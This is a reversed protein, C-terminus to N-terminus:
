NDKYLSIMSKSRPFRRIKAVGDPQDSTAPELVWRYNGGCQKTPHEELVIAGTETAGAVVVTALCKAAVVKTLTRTLDVLQVSGDTTHYRFLTAGPTEGAEAFAGFVTKGDRLFGDLRISLRRGWEGDSSMINGPM